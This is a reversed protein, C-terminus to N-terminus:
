QVAGDGPQQPRHRTVPSSRPTVPRSFSLKKAFTRPDVSVTAHLPPTTGLGAM